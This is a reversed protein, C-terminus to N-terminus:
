DTEFGKERCFRGFDAREPTAYQRAKDEIWGYSDSEGFRAPDRQSRMPQLRRRREDYARLQADLDGEDFRDVHLTATLPLRLSVRPTPFAPWGLGLGAFPIVHDPLALLDSVERARNRVASIPCIGLGVAEAATVFAQLLIAADAFANLLADLHANAFPHGTLDHLRRQRRNNALVVALVPAKAIWAQDPVLAALRERQADDRILVLDRQQLDSKSGASFATAALTELLPWPVARDTFHRCSGRAAMDRLAPAVSEDVEAPTEGFRERFLAELSPM